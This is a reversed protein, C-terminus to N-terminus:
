KAEPHDTLGHREALNRWFALGKRYKQQQWEPVDTRAADQQARRYGHAIISGHVAPGKRQPAPLARHEPLKRAPATAKIADMVVAPATLWRENDRVYSCARAAHDHDCRALMRAVDTKVENPDLSGHVPVRDLLNDALLVAQEPNM